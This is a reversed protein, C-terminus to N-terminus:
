KDSLWGRGYLSRALRRRTMLLQDSRRLLDRRCEDIAIELDIIQNELREIESDSSDLFPPTMAVGRAGEGGLRSSM